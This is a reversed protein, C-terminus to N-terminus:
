ILQVVKSILKMMEISFRKYNIGHENYQMLKDCLFGLPGIKNFGFRNWVSHLDPELMAKEGFFIHGEDVVKEIVESGFIRVLQCIKNIDQMPFQFEQFKDVQRKQLYYICLLSACLDQKLYQDLFNQYHPQILCYPGCYPTIQELLIQAPRQQQKAATIEKIAYPKVVAKGFDILKVIKGDYLFNNLKIDNHIINAEDLKSCIELIQTSVDHINDIDNMQEELNRGYYEMSLMQLSGFVQYDEVKVANAGAFEAFRKTALYEQLLLERTHLRLAQKCQEYDGFGQLVPCKVAVLKDKKPKCLIVIGFSGSGLVRVIQTRMKPLILTTFLFKSAQVPQFSKPISDYVRRFFLDPLSKAIQNQIPM